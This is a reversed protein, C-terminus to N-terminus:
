RYINSVSPALSEGHFTPNSLPKHPVTKRDSPIVVLMYCRSPLDAHINLVDIAVLRVYDASMIGMQETSLCPVYSRSSKLFVILVIALTERLVQQM